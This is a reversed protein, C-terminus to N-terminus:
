RFIRRSTWAEKNYRNHYNGWPDINRLKARMSERKPLNEYYENNM